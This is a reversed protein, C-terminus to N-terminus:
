LPFVNEAMARAKISDNSIELSVADIARLRAPWM